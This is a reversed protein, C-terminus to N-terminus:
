QEGSLSRSRDRAAEMATLFAAVVLGALVTYVRTRLRAPKSAEQKLEAQVLGAIGEGLAKKIDGIDASSAPDGPVPGTPPNTTSM